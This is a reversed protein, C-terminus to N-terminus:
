SSIEYEGSDIEEKIKEEKYEVDIIKILIAISISSFHIFVEHGEKLDESEVLMNTVHVVFWLSETEEM